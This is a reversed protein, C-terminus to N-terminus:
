TAPASSPTVRASRTGCRTTAIWPATALPGAPVVMVRSPARVVDHAVLRVSGAGGVRGPAAVGALVAEHDAAQADRRDGLRLVLDELADVELDPRALDVRDHARVARALRREGVRQHAM